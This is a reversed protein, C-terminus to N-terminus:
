RSGASAPRPITRRVVAALLVVLFLGCAYVLWDGLVTYLTWAGSVPVDALMTRDETEFFDQYALLRGRHDAAMSTGQNVQRVVSFGNEVGRLLAVETHYPRIAKTDFAPVLVIDAEQRGAQRIFSPFDMDFCIAGAVRGYPTDVTHIVGDSGTPYWSKTKTYSYALRGEPTIMLIKNESVSEGCRLVLVAPAFYVGHTQAFEAARRLFAEERDEYFVGNGESWFVIRAGSEAARESAAFLGEELRALEARFLPAEERPVKRDIIEAWYDRRHEATIGAVRVTQRERPVSWRLAGAGIVVISVLLLAAVPRWRFRLDWRGEWVHNVVSPVWALLFTIGWIGTVSAMQILPKAHFHTVAASFGSGLPLFASLYDVLVALSPYVLTALLGSFRRSLFRDLTLPVFLILAVLFGIAIELGLSMDWGGHIKLLTVAGLLPIAALTHLWRSRNRFFRILLIPSIWVAPPIIYRWGVALQLLAGAALYVWDLPGEEMTLTRDIRPEAM